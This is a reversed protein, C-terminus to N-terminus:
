DRRLFRPNKISKDEICSLQYEVMKDFPLLFDELEKKSHNENAHNNLLELIVLTSEITSLCYEQPQTKFKFNSTKTHTFSLKPLAQLNPSLALIKRSCPWTADILFLVTKKNQQQINVENLKISNEHPYLVFCNNNVDNIISNIEKHNRFNIGIFLKSNQLTLHTFRGTGNKTKKFEKPHMLIIFQTNTELPTIYNCMCSSQPRYCKYCKERNDIPENENM